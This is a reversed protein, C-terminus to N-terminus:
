SVDVPLFQGTHPHTAWLDGNELDFWWGHLTLRGAAVREAIWPYQRLNELSNLVSAREVLYSCEKLLSIAVPRAHGAADAVVQHCAPAALALWDGIFDSQITHGDAHDIAAKIGGCHAHGFVVIQSVNLAKVGYEIAARVGQGAGNGYSFPPVLNAVNRVTFIEGLAAGAILSLDVRSDCCGILLIEPKQAQALEAMRVQDGRYERERFALAGEILRAMVGTYMSQDVSM